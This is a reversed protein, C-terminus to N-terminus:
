HDNISAGLHLTDTFKQDWINITHRNKTVPKITLVSSHTFILLIVLQKYINVPKPVVFKM